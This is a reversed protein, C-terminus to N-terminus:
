GTRRLAVIDQRWAQVIADTEPDGGARRVRWKRLALENQANVISRSVRDGYGPIARLSFGRESVVM